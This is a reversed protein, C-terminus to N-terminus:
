LPSIRTRGADYGVTAWDSSTKADVQPWPAGDDIIGTALNAATGGEARAGTALALTGLLAITQKM